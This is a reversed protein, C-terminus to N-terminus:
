RYRVKRLESTLTEVTVRKLERYLTSMSIGALRAIEAKATGQKLLIEIQARKESTLHKFKRSNTTYKTNTM